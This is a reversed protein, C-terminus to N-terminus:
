YHGKASLIIVKEDTVEYVLRHEKSVRRSWCGALEYKLEEPKGIGTYPNKKIDEILQNIKKIVKLQGSKKFFYIDESGKLTYEIVREM